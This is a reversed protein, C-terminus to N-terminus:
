LFGGVYRFPDESEVVASVAVSHLIRGSHYLETYSLGLLCRNDGHSCTTLACVRLYIKLAISKISIPIGLKGLFQILHLRRAEVVVIHWRM